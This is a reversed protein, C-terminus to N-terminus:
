ALAEKCARALGISLPLPIRSRFYSALPLWNTESNLRGDRGKLTKHGLFSNPLLFRPFDGWLYYPKHLFKPPGLLTSIYKVSGRVNELVWFRPKTEQIVRHTERVLEMGKEPEGPGRSGRAVSLFLLDSFETCPPSAVLVDFHGEPHYDRINKHILEYPYGVDKVDVGVCEFGERHFGISWGGMGCFLDLLRLPPATM